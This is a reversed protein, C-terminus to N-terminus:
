DRRHQGQGYNTEFPLHIQKITQIKQKMTVQKVQYINTENWM